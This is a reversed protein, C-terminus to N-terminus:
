PHGTTTLVGPGTYSCNTVTITGSCEYEAIGALSQGTFVVNQITTPGTGEDLFIGTQQSIGLSITDGTADITGNQIICNNSAQDGPTGYNWEAVIGTHVATLQFNQFTNATTYHEMYIGNGSYDNAGSMDIDIDSFLTDWSNNGTWLSSMSVNRIKIRHVGNTVPQGVWLGAEATGDSSGPPSAVVGSINIDTITNIAPTSAHYAVESDDSARLAIYSFDNFTCRQVILGTPNYAYIGCGVQYNGEFTCDLVSTNDGAGGITGMYVCTTVGITDDAKASSSINFALGQLVAGGGSSGGSMGIGATLTAGGLNQAYISCHHPNSFASSNDYTGNALVIPSTGASLASILGASTTVLTYTGPLSYSSPPIPADPGSGALESSDLIFSGGFNDVLAGTDGGGGGGGGGGGSGGGSPSSSIQTLQYTVTHPVGAQIQHSINEVFCTYTITVGTAPPSSVVTVCDGIELNLCQLWASTGDDMTKLSAIRPAPTSRAAVINTAVSNADPDEVLQTSLQLQRPDSSTVSVEQPVAGSSGATVTADTVVHDLSYDITLGQYPVGGTGADTFTLQSIQSRSQTARHDGDHFTANGAADIFVYGIESTSVDQLHQLASVKNALGFEQAIVDYIGPDISKGGAWSINTLIRNIRDGTLEIPWDGGTFAQAGTDGNSPALTATGVPAAHVIKSAISDSNVLSAVSTASSSCNGGSDTALWITIAYGEVEVYAAASVQGTPVIMRVTMGQDGTVLSTFTITNTTHAPDVYQYSQFGTVLDKNSFIDFADVGDVQIDSYGALTGDSSAPVVYNPTIREIIGNWLPYSTGNEVRVIRMPVTPMFKPYYPSNVNLPDMLGDPNRFLVSCTGPQISDLEFQRGRSTTIQSLRLPTASDSFQTFQNDTLTALISQGFAFGVWTAETAGSIPFGTVVVAGPLANMQLPQQPAAAVGTAVKPEGAWFPWAPNPNLLGAGPPQGARQPM